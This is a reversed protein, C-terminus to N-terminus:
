CVTGVALDLSKGYLMPVFRKRYESIQKEIYRGFIDYVPATIDWKVEAPLFCLLPPFLIVLFLSIAPHRQLFAYMYHTACVLLRNSFTYILKNRLYFYIGARVM